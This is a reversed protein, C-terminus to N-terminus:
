THHSPDRAERTSRKRNTRSRGAFGGPLGSRAVSERPLAGIRYSLAGILEGDVYVQSGSMGAAVGVRDAVAGELLVLHLDHGPGLADKQTGLVRLPIEEVRTGELATLVYGRAGPPPDGLIEPPQPVPSDALALGCTFLLHAFAGLTRIM